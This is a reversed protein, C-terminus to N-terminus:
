MWIWGFCLIYLLWQWFTYYVEIDFTATCGEYTATITKFGRTSTDFGTLELESNDIVATSGDSYTATIELGTTDLNEIGYKYSNVSPQATVTISVVEAPKAVTYSFGSTASEEYGDKVAYAIIYTDETVTIPGTYKIRSDSDTICPCSKDLTYYIEAGETKTSLVIETGKEVVTGTPINSTVKECRKSDTELEVIVKTKVSIDTDAIAITIESEGPLDGSLTVSAKGNSDTTVTATKVSVISPSSSTINLTLTKGAEAPLVQLDVTKNQGYSMTINEDVSIGSPKVTIAKNATYKGAITKGAYNVVNNIEVDVTGSINTEPVFTFISAFQETQEYNYEANAPALTGKVVSGNQKFIVNNLNVSDLKMYQSFIIQIENNYANVSAVAPAAKSVIATNVETQPPPVPLYGEEDAAPDNRSDTDYYGEKSFKVIWQGVPVDWAYMGNADTYLPNVQDYETADWLIESKEEAPMGFEDLAYDYYYAEAKVGEVRNSPVAEYVYGSPDLIPKVPQSPTEPEHQEPEDEPEEEPCEWDKMIETILNTLATRMDTDMNSISSWVANAYAPATLPSGYNLVNSVLTQGKVVSLAGGLLNFSMMALHYQDIQPMLGDIRSQYASILDNLRNAYYVIETNDLANSGDDCKKYLYGYSMNVLDIYSDYNSYLAKKMNGVEVGLEVQSSLGNSLLGLIFSYWSGVVSKASRSKVLVDNGSLKNCWAEDFTFREVVLVKKETRIIHTETFMANDIVKFFVKENDLTSATYGDEILKNEDISEIATRTCEYEIAKMDDMYNDYFVQYIRDETEEKVEGRFRNALENREEELQGSYYNYDDVYMESNLLIEEEIECNWVANVAVPAEALSYFNHTGLWLGSKADYTVPIYTEEGASNTTVVYVDSLTTDDGGTFEVEFTFLTYRGPWMRYSPPNSPNLFDFVSVNQGNDGTNIMTIKSLNIYSEDYVLLKKETQLDNEYTDNSISAYIEHYSFSYPKVLDFALSWTGNKNATVKGVETGNDYVTVTSNPLATGSVTVNKRGTKEPVEIKNSEANFTATGIPQLINEGNCKFGLQANINHTGSETPYVYFRIVGSSSNTYVKIQDGDKTYSGAKGNLTLSGDTFSVGEPLDFTVYEGSTQYKSDIKYEARMVIYRGVTATTVNPTFYTSESVTYYLKSEDFDPVTVEDIVTVTGNKVSAEVIKYDSGAKLGFESLKSINSVNRLLNTKEVIVLKYNGAPLVDSTFVREAAKSKVINNNGDFLMVTVKEAGKINNIKIKGNETFLIEGNGIKLDSLKVKIPEATMTKNSDTVSVQIEDNGEVNKDEIVINPYQLTFSTIQKNKTVNLLSFELGYFSTIAQTYSDGANEVSLQKKMTLTIKNQPLLSLVTTGADYSASAQSVDSIKITKSYYGFLSFKIEADTKAVTLKYLGNKDTTTQETRTFKGGVTQASVVAVGSLAKGDSDTLKGKVTIEPIRELKCILDIIDADEGATVEGMEPEYYLKGLDNELSIKYSYTKGAEAGNLQAGEAIVADSGKEYWAVSYGSSIAESNENQLSLSIKKDSGTIYEIGIGNNLAYTEAYSGPYCCIVFDESCGYFAADGIWTVSDPITVSTLSTCECFACDGISTVSDPITISTLSTCEYFACAGISTVSDPITVSTLSTCHSFAYNGISTVSDPITISTLRTCYEFAYWGISTVSDPITISTLSTCNYFANSGISTVSDPITISTLSTCNYFASGGISTVSDPITISALSSCSYFTYNGISTVGDSIVLDTVLLDNLYLAARNYIPNASYSSFSIKCWASIDSIKVSKLNECGEFADSGISTVSDPITISALSSCRFFAYWGISTVSDPITISTLSTCNYFANSGISTVSDPITISTLSTCSQFASSGISTVSDPIIYETIKSGAPYQILQTKDKNFLVGYLDSSYYQNNEDVTISTLSTCGCFAYSGISTVSDPITISTLSTCYYFAYNGISTVSDPITVSTLSTCYYFAWDGISTIGDPLVVTKIYSSYTYWPVSSYSSYNKMAGTGSITLVGTDTDLSWTLNDGCTGSYSEANATFDFLKGFDPLELGVFGSLPASSVLMAAVLLASLMRKFTKKM